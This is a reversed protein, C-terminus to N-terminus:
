EPPPLAANATVALWRKIEAGLSQLEVPKSVVANCGAKLIREQEERLAHATVAIVPTQNFEGRLWAVFETGDEPGLRIDLLVIAPQHKQFTSRATGLSTAALVQYGTIELWETLMELNMLNDEVVLVRTKQAPNM